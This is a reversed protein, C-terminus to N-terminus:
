RSWTMLDFNLQFVEDPECGRVRNETRKLFAFFEAQVEARVAETASFVLAFNYNRRNEPEERLRDMAKGRLSSQYQPHLPSGNPLHLQDLIVKAETGDYQILGWEQLRGLCGKLISARLGLAKGILAPHRAYRDITLFLHVLQFTPNLYYELLEQESTQRVSESLHKETRENQARLTLIKQQLLAQREPLGSRQHEHLLALYTQEDETLKLFRGALYIQDANLHADQRFVRSLYPKQIGCAEAMKQFDFHHSGLLLKKERLVSELLDKYSTEQYINM